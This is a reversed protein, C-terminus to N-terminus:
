QANKIVGDAWAIAADVLPDEIFGDIKHTEAVLTAGKGKLIEEAKEVGGCFHPYSSDGLGVLAFKQGNLDPLQNLYEEAVMNLDGDDWSSSVFIVLDYQGYDEGKCDDADKYVFESDGHTEKLKTYMQESLMASNGSLTAYNILIKM